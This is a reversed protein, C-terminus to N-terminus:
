ELCRSRITRLALYHVTSISPALAGLAIVVVLTISSWLATRDSEDTINNQAERRDGPERTQVVAALVETGAQMRSCMCIICSNVYTILAPHHNSFGAAIHAVAALLAAPRSHPDLNVHHVLSFWMIQLAYRHIHKHALSKISHGFSGAFASM